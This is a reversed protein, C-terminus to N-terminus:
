KEPYGIAKKIYMAPVKDTLYVGNNSLYFKYGDAAMLSADIELVCPSGHRRGTEMATKQNDTLHVYLRSKPLIGQEKISGLFREATGHYLTGPLKNVEVEKLDVDVNISHGQRARIKTGDESYEYRKKANSDVIERILDETYEQKDVLESISRWGHEDIIGRELAAADHRLLWSLRRGEYDLKGQSYKGMTKQKTVTKSQAFIGIFGSVLFPLGSFLRGKMDYEWSM